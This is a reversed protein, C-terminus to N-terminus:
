GIKRKKKAVINSLVVFVIAFGIMIAMNIIIPKTTDLNINELTVLSENNSIYYYTPLIHAIKLVIDPLWSMPVFAGCLFSSGLSIVNSVGTLAERNGVLNAVLFSLATVTITFVFSNIIYILGAQTFMTEKLIVFSIGVYFLWVIFAYCCNSLFLIRNHKKYNTSSIIIRKRIKEENFSNIILGIIFVLCALLSYSAFNYYYTTRQLATTNLKSMMEIDVEDDLVENIKNILETEDTISKQYINAVQMYRTVIMEAYAAAYDGTSKIKIEPNKGGLFEQGYNEPIEIIYNVERYFLADNILEEEQEIDKVKCSKNLYEVFNKTVISEEDNNIILIDPKEASFSMSQESTRMNSIGFALLFATYLIIVFKNKNLIKWFTKFVTM